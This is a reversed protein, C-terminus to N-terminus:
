LYNSKFLHPPSNIKERTVYLIMSSEKLEDAKKTVGGGEFASTM